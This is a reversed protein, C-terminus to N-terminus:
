LESSTDARFFPSPSTLLIHFNIVHVATFHLMWSSHSQFCCPCFHLGIEGRHTFMWFVCSFFSLLSSYPLIHPLSLSLLTLSPISFSRLILPLPFFFLTLLFHPPNPSLPFSHFSLTLPFLPLSFLLFFSSFSSSPPSFSSIWFLTFKNLFSHIRFLDFFYQFNNVLKQKSTKNQQLAIM